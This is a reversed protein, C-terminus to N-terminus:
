RYIVRRTQQGKPNISLYIFVEHISLYVYLYITVQIIQDGIQLQGQQDALGGPHIDEIFIQTRGLEDETEYSLTLGLREDGPRELM